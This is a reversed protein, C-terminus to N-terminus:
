PGPVPFSWWYWFTINQSRTPIPQQTKWIEDITRPPNINHLHACGFFICWVNHVLSSHVWLNLYFYLPAGPIPAYKNPGLPLLFYAGFGFVSHKQVSSKARYLTLPNPCRGPVSLFSNSSVCLHTAGPTVLRISVGSNFNSDPFTAWRNHHM